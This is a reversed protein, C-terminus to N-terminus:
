TFNGATGIDTTKQQLKPASDDLLRRVVEPSLSSLGRKEAQFWNDTAARRCAENLQETTYGDAFL